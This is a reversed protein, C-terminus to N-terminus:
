AIPRRPGTGASTHRNRLQGVNTRLTTDDAIMPTTAKLKQASCLGDAPASPTVGAVGVSVVVTIPLAAAPAGVPDTAKVKHLSVSGDVGHLPPVGTPVTVVGVDSPSTEVKV